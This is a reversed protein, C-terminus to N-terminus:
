CLGFMFCCQVARSRVFLLQSALFCELAVSLQRTYPSSPGEGIDEDADMDPALTWENQQQKGSAQADPAEVVDEGSEDSTIRLTITRDNRARYEEEM